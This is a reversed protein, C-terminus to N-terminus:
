PNKGAEEKMYEALAQEWDAMSYGLKQRLTGKELVSYKPRKAPTPYEDTTISILAVTLDALEFIRKAFKYWTCEGECTAHYIGYKGTFMMKKIARALEMTSTPNGRQDNVVRVPKGTRALRLMTRVFNNGEGYLWATRAIYAKECHQQVLREGALKTRGYANIPNPSDSERYPRVKGDELIGEGDFIYDTSIHILEAGCKAAAKAVNGAGTANALYAQEEMSECDDVRTFAACHIICEPQIKMIATLTDQESTIDMEEVDYLFIEYEIQLIRALARGLQGKAGTILVKKM